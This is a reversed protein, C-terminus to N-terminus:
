LRRYSWSWLVGYWQSGHVGTTNVLIYLMYVGVPLYVYFLDKKFVLKSRKLPDELVFQPSMPIRDLESASSIATLNNPIAATRVTIIVFHRLCGSETYYLPYNKWWRKSASTGLSPIGIQKPRQHLKLDCLLSVYLFFVDWSFYSALLHSLTPTSKYCCSMRVM